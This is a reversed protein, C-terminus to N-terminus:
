APREFVGKRPVCGGSRTSDATRRIKHAERRDKWRLEEAQGAEHRGLTVHGITRRASAREDFFAEFLNVSVVKRACLQGCNVGRITLWKRGDAKM